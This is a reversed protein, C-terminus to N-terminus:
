RSGERAMRREICGREWRENRKLRQPVRRWCWPCGVMDGGLEHGEPCWYASYGHHVELVWGRYRETAVPMPKTTM